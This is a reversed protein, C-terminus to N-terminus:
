TELLAPVLMLELLETLEDTDPVTDPFRVLGYSVIQLWRMADDPTVGDRLLGQESAAAFMPEILPRLGESLAKGQVRAMWASASPEMLSRHVPDVAMEALAIALGQVLFQEPTASDGLQDIVKGGVRLTAQVVVATILEEKDAFYRYISSRHLGAAEAVSELRLAGVGGDRVAAEAADVLRRRTADYEPGEPRAKWDTSANM